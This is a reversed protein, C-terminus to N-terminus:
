LEDVYNCFIPRNIACTRARTVGAKYIVYFKSVTDTYIIIYIYIYVCVCVCVCACVCVCVCVCM